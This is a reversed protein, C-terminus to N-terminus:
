RTWRGGASPAAPVARTIFGALDAKLRDAARRDIYMMHGGEYFGLRLHGKLSPALEMHSATYKAALFPTALDFYGCAVYVQLAPNRTMAAALADAVNLYENQASSFNWPQVRGTLTEYPLDSEYGLEARVYENLAATFAGHVATWSPDYDPTDGAADSDIGTFRSDYRGV